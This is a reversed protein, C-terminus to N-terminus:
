KKCDQVALWLDIRISAYIMKFLALYKEASLERPIENDEFSVKVLTSGAYLDAEM